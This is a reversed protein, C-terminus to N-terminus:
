KEVRRNAAMDLMSALPRDNYAYLAEFVSTDKVFFEQLPTLKIFSINILAFVVLAIAGASFAAPVLDLKLFRVALLRKSETKEAEKLINRYIRDSFDRTVKQHEQQGVLLAFHRIKNLEERCAACERLHSEIEENEKLSLENSLYPELKLLIPKCSM